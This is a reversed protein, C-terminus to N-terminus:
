NKILYFRQQEIVKYLISEDPPCVPDECWSQFVFSVNKWYNKEEETMKGWEDKTHENNSLYDYFSIKNTANLAVHNNSLLVPPKEVALEGDEEMKALEEETYEPIKDESFMPKDSPRLRLVTFEITTYPVSPGEVLLKQGNESTTNGSFTSNKVEYTLIHYMHSTDAKEKYVLNFKDDSQGNVIM